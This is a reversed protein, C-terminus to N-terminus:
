LRAGVSALAADWRALLTDESYHSALLANAASMHAARSERSSILNGIARPWDAPAACAADLGAARMTRTYAPTAEAVVPLGLMWFLLIKNEPKLRMLVDDPIPLLAVDCRSAISAFTRPHWSYFFPQVGTGAFSKQLLATTEVCGIRGGWRCIRPDSIVHVMVRRARTFDSLVEVLRELIRQNGHSMGEWAVHLEDDRMSYDTKTATVDDWFADTVYHVNEHYRLLLERQEPSGCV